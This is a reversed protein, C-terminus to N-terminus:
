DVVVQYHVTGTLLYRNSPNVLPLSATNTAQEYKIDWAVQTANYIYTLGNTHTWEQNPFPTTPFSM